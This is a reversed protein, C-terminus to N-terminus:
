PHETSQPTFPQLMPAFGEVLARAFILQGFDTLHVLDWFLFGEDQHKQLAASLEAVQIGSQLAVEKMMQQNHAHEKQFRELPEPIFLTRIGAARNLRIIEELNSRFRPNGADNLSINVVCVDPKLHIWEKSYHDLIVDSNVGSIGANMAHIPRNFERSALEQFRNVFTFEGKSAGAGWTQSSGLFMVMLGSTDAAEGPLREVVEDETAITTTVNSWFIMWERPYSKQGFIQYWLVLGVVLVAVNATLILLFRRLDALLYFFLNGLLMALLLLPWHPMGRSFSESFIMRNQEDRIEVNDICAPTEYGRFGILNMETRVPLNITRTSDDNVFLRLADGEKVLSLTNWGDGLDPMKVPVKNLFAGHHITLYASPFDPHNSIRIAHFTDNQMGFYCVLAADEALLFDFDMRNASFSRTCFVEQYGHWSSLDLANYALARHSLMFSWAGMVGKELTTKTSRWEGNSQLTHTFLRYGQYGALMAFVLFLNFLLLNGIRSKHQDVM